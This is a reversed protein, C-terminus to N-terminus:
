DGRISSWKGAEFKSTLVKIRELKFMVLTLRKEITFQKPEPTGFELDNNLIIENILLTSVIFL